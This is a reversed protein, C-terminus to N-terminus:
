PLVGAARERELQESGGGAHLTALDYSAQYAYLIRISLTIPARAHTHTVHTTSVQLAGTQLEFNEYAPSSKVELLVLPTLVITLERESHNSVKRAHPKLLSIVRRLLSNVVVLASNPPESWVARGNLVEPEDGHETKMVWRSRRHRILSQPAGLVANRINQLILHRLPVLASVHFHVQNTKCMKAKKAATHNALAATHMLVHLPHARRFTGATARRTVWDYLMRICLEHAHLGVLPGINSCERLWRKVSDVTTAKGLFNLLCSRLQADESFVGDEFDVLAAATSNRKCRLLGCVCVILLKHARSVSPDTARADIAEQVTSLLSIADDRRGEAARFAEKLKREVKQAKDQIQESLAAVAMAATCSSERGFTAPRFAQETDSSRASSNTSGVLFARQASEAVASGPVTSGVEETFPALNTASSGPSGASIAPIDAMVDVSTLVDANDFRAASTPSTPYQAHPAEHEGPSRLLDQRKTVSEWREQTNLRMLRNPSLFQPLPCLDFRIDLTDHKYRTRPSWLNRSSDNSSLSSHSQLLLASHNGAVHPMAIVRAQTTRCIIRQHQRLKWTKQFMHSLYSAAVEIDML